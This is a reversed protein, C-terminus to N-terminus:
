NCVNKSEVWLSNDEHSMQENTAHENADKHHDKFDHNAIHRTTSMDHPAHGNMM